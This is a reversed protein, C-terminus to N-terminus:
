PGTDDGLLWNVIEDEDVAEPRRLRLAAQRCRPCDWLSDHQDPEGPELPSGCRRCYQLAISLNFM